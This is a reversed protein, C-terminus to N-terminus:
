KVEGKNDYKKYPIVITVKTGVNPKSEIQMKYEEGYIHRIRQIVNGVGVTRMEGKVPDEAESIKRVTDESMGIGDDEIVIEINVSKKRVQIDLHGKSMKAALGHFVANEVIPQILVNPIAADLIEEEIAYSVEFRKPYRYEQLLLYNKVNKLEQEMSTFINDKKVNLTDQLLSIFANSFRVIDDNGKIRAMYVISNLTNYIFHPNIQLMLRNIEMEKTTKEYEITEKLMKQIDAIMTNFADGLVALEDKTHIDVAVDLNGKGVEAAAEHLQELPKTINRIVASLMVTLMIVAALFISVFFITVFQLQAALLKQSVESVLIWGDQMNKHILLTNKNELVHKGAEMNKVDDYSISVRDSEAVANGYSDFMAYGNLLVSDIQIYKQLYPCSIHLMIEGLTDHTHYLDKFEMIYSIVEAKGRGQELIYTHSDSFGKERKSEKFNRYWEEELFFAADETSNSSFDIGDKTLITVGLIHSQENIYRRLIEKMRSAEVLKDVVNENEQIEACNQVETDVAIQKAISIINNQIYEIQRAIQDQKQEEELVTHDELVRYFYRSGGITSGLFLASVILMVSFIIKTRISKGM